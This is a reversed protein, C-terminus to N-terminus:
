LSGLASLNMIQLEYNMILLSPKEAENKRIHEKITFFNTCQNSPYTMGTRTNDDRHIPIKLKGVVPPYVAPLNYIM